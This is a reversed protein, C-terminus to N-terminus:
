DGRQVQRQRLLQKIERVRRRPIVVEQQSGEVALVVVLQRAQNRHWSVILSPAVAMHKSLRILYPFRQCITGLTIASLYYGGNHFYMHTYNGDALTWSVQPQSHPQHPKLYPTPKM